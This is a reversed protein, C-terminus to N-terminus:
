RMPPGPRAIADPRCSDGLKRYAPTDEPCGVAEVQQAITVITVAVVGVIGLAAVIAILVMSTTM